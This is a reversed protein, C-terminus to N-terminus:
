HNTTPSQMAIRQSPTTRCRIPSGCRRRLTSDGLWWFGVVFWWSRCDPELNERCSFESLIILATILTSGTGFWRTLWLGLRRPHHNMTLPEHNRAVTKCRSHREGTPYASVVSCNVTDSGDVQRDCKTTPPQTRTTPPCCMAAGSRIEWDTTPFLPAVRQSATGLWWGSVVLWWGRKEPDVM